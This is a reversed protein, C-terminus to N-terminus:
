AGVRLSIDSVNTGVRSYAQMLSDTHIISALISCVAIRVRSKSLMHCSPSGKGGQNWRCILVYTCAFLFAIAFEYEGPGEYLSWKKNM